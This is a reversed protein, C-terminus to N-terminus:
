ATFATARRSVSAHRMCRHVHPVGDATTTAQCACALQQPSIHVASGGVELGEIVEKRAVNDQGVVARVEGCQRCGGPDTEEGNHGSEEGEVIRCLHSVSPWRSCEDTRENM